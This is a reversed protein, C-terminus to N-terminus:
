YSVFLIRPHIREYDLIYNPMLYNHSSFDDFNLKLSLAFGLIIMLVSAISM